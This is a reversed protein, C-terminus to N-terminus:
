YFRSVKDKDKDKKKKKKDHHGTDQTTAIAETTSSSSSATVPKSHIAGGVPDSTSSTVFPASQSTVGDSQGEYSVASVINTSSTYASGDTTASSSVIQPPRAINVVPLRTIIAKSKEVKDGESYVQNFGNETDHIDPLPLGNTEMTVCTSAKFSSEDDTNDCPKEININSDEVTEDPPDLEKNQPTPYEEIPPPPPPPAILLMDLGTGPPPPEGSAILTDAGIIFNLASEIDRPDHAPIGLFLSFM